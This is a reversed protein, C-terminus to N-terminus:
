RRGCAACLTKSARVLIPVVTTTGFSCVHQPIGAKPAPSFAPAVSSAFRFTFANRGSPPTQGSAMVEGHAERCHVALPLDKRRALDLQREFVEAQKERPSLDRYYDLGVEGVAVVRPHGALEELKSWDEETVKGAEHPHVGVAAFVEAHDSALEVSRQSSSLDAGVNVIAVVGAVSARRLVEERDNDFDSFDLHAHSDVLRM